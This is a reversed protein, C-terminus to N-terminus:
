KPTTVFINQSYYIVTVLYSYFNSLFKGAFNFVSHCSLCAMHYYDRPKDFNVLYKERHM